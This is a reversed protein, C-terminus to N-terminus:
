YSVPNNYCNLGTQCCWQKRASDAGNGGADISRVTGSMFGNMAQAVDDATGDGRHIPMGVRDFHPRAKTKSLRQNKCGPM